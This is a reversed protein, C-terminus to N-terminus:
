FRPEAVEAVEAEEVEVEAVEKTLELKSERDPSEKDQNLHCM